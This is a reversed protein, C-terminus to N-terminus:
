FTVPLRRLGRFFTNTSWDPTQSVLQLNPLQELLRAFGIRAETRALPAGLCFHMGLGFALHRNPQRMMDFTDPQPFQDPDRNAAGIVASVQQGQEITTHGIEFSKTTVRFTARQVPSEFRLMEEVALPLLDPRSKILALQDPHQLLALLGNGLLNVTTEHGAILLLMCMALLEDETLRDQADRALTLASILDDRPQQRRRHVLDAFYHGLALTAGESQKVTAESRRVADFGTVMQNSWAHFTEQDEPPVGLLEAIVTVPLPLAFDAMFEMGGESQIQAILDDVIQRIRPELDKVRNPTFAQNALARLRTHDPPDKALLNHDFPTVQEPPTFRTADKTTYAEKL